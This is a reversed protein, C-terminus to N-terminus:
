RSTTNILTSLAGDETSLARQAAQYSRTADLMDTMTATLDVNSGELYGSALQPSTVATPAAGNAPVVYTGDRRDFPTTPGFAAVQLQGVVAGQAVVQGSPSITM